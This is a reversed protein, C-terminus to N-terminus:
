KSNNEYYKITHKKLQESSTSTLFVIAFIGIVSIPFVVIGPISVFIFKLALFVGLIIIGITRDKKAKKYWSILEELVMIAYEESLGKEILKKIIQRNSKGNKLLSVAILNYEPNIIMIKNISEKNLIGRNVMEQEVANKKKVSIRDSEKYLEKLEDNTYNMVIKQWDYYDKKM